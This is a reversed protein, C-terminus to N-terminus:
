SHTDFTVVGSVQFSVDLVLLNGVEVPTGFSTVFAAGTIKPNTSTTGDPSLQFNVVDGANYIAALQGYLTADYKYQVDITANKFSQEFDRYADGFVTAEVTEAEANLTVSMTKTTFNTLVTPAGNTGHQWNSNKGGLAM